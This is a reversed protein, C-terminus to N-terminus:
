LLDIWLIVVYIAALKMSGYLISSTVSKTFERGSLQSSNEPTYATSLCFILTAIYMRTCRISPLCTGITICTQNYRASFSRRGATKKHRAGRAIKDGQKM